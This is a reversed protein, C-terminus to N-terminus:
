GVVECEIRESWAIGDSLESVNWPKNSDSWIMGNRRKDIEALAPRSFAFWQWLYLGPEVPYESRPIRRLQIKHTM